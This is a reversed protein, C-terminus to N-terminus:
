KTYKERFESPNIGIIQQFHRLFTKSSNYGVEIAIETISMDTDALLDCAKFIRIQNLFSNFNTEVYYNLSENINKPSAQFMQSVATIDMDEAYNEYMYDIIKIARNDLRLNHNSEKPRVEIKYDKINIKYRETFKKSLASSDSYNLLDAIESTSMNTNRILFEAKFLKMEQLLEYFGLGTLNTIYRSISSESMYFVKSMVNLTIDKSSNLFMYMFIQEPDPKNKTSSINKSNRLYISLLETLKSIAYIKIFPDTFEDDDELYNIGFEDKIDEFVQRMRKLDFDSPAITNNTYLLDIIDLKKSDINFEKKIHMNLLNFNYVLLYYVLEKDVEIIESIQWPAIQIITNPKLDYVKNLIKIKGSGEIIYIFRSYKHMLPETPKINNQIDFIFIYNRNTYDEFQDQIKIKKM